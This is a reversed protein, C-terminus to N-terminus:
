RITVSPWSLRWRMGKVLFAHGEGFELQSSPLERFQPSLDIRVTVPDVVADRFDWEFRSRVVVDDDRIGIVPLAAASRIWLLMDDASAARPRVMAEFSRRGDADDVLFRDGRWSMSALRKKFGYYLNGNWVAWWADCVMGVILLCAGTEERWRVFPVAVMLEHYQVTWPLPIGGLFATGHSQEGFVLLCRCCSSGTHPLAVRDTINPLLATAPVDVVALCGNFTAQGALSARPIRGDETVAM